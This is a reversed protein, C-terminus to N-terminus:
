DTKVMRFRKVVGIVFMNSYTHQKLNNVEAQQWDGLYGLRLTTKGVKFDLTLMHRLSPANFVTTPVINHDYDGKSFIEYYSQGFNPSFMVGVLPVAVEYRVTVPRSFAKFRYSAMASPSLNVALRAQAPNNGNRTNYLFGANVDATAGAALTLRGDAMAWRRHMGYSFMYMGAMESGEASRNEAYSLYGQHVLQHTWARGSRERTTHSLYRLETGRYKEPSIYTDLIETAGVAIMRANTIIKADDYSMGCRTENGKVGDDAKVCCSDAHQEAAMGAPMLLLIVASVIAKSIMRYTM